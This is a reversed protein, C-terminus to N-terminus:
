LQDTCAAARLNYYQAVDTSRSQVDGADGAANPKDHPCVAWATQRTASLAINM